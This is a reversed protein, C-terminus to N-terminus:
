HAKTEFSQCCTGDVSKPNCNCAGVNIANLSCYNDGNCHYKCNEVTCGINNNKKDSM